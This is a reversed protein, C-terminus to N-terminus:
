SRDTEGASHDAVTKKIADGQELTAIGAVDERRKALIEAEAKELEEEGPLKPIPIWFEPEIQGERELPAFPDSLAHDALDLQLFPLTSDALM